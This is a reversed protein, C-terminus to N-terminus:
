SDVSLSKGPPGIALVGHDWPLPGQNLGQDPFQDWIGYSFIVHTAVLFLDQLWIFLLLYISFAWFVVFFFWGMIMIQEGNVRAVPTKSPSQSSNAKKPLSATRGYLLFGLLGSSPFSFSLFLLFFSPSHASSPLSAFSPTLHSPASCSLPLGGWLFHNILSEVVIDVGGKLLCFRIVREKLILQILSEAELLYVIVSAITHSWTMFPMMIGERDRGQRRQSFGTVVQYPWGLLGPFPRWGLATHILHGSLPDKLGM